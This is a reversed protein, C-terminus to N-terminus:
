KISELFIRMGIILPSSIFPKFFLSNLDSYLFFKMTIVFCMPSILFVSKALLRKNQKMSTVINFFPLACCLVTITFFRWYEPMRMPYCAITMIALLFGYNILKDDENRM